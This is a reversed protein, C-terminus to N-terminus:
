DCNFFLWQPLAIKGHLAAASSRLGSLDAKVGAACWRNAAPKKVSHHVRACFQAHRFDLVPRTMHEHDAFRPVGRTFPGNACLLVRTCKRRTKDGREILDIQPISRTDMLHASEAAMM